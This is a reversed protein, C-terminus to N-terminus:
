DANIEGEKYKNCPKESDPAGKEMLKFDCIIHNDSKGGMYKMYKCNLKRCLKRRAKMEKAEDECKPSCFPKNDYYQTGCWKCSRYKRVPTQERCKLYCRESCLTQKEDSSYFIRSCVPCNKEYVEM